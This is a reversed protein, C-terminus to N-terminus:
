KGEEEPCPPSVNEEQKRLLRILRGIWPLKIDFKIGFAECNELISIAETLGIYIYVMDDLWGLLLPSINVATQHAMIGLCFYIFIKALGSFSRKSSLCLGKKRSALIGTIWDVAVLIAIASIVPASLDGLLRSLLTLVLALIAKFHWQETLSNLVALITFYM